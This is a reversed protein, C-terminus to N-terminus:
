RCNCFLFLLYLLSSRIFTAAVPTMRVQCRARVLLRYNDISPTIDTTVEGSTVILMYGIELMNRGIKMIDSVSNHIMSLFVDAVEMIYSHGLLLKLSPSLTLECKSGDHSLTCSLGDSGSPLLNTQEYESWVGPLSLLNVRSFL